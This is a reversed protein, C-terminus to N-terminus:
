RCSRFAAQLRQITKLYDDLAPILKGRSAENASAADHLSGTTQAALASMDAGQLAKLLSAMGSQNKATQQQGYRCQQTTLGSAADASGAGVLALLALAGTRSLVGSRSFM